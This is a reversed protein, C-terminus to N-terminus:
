SPPLLCVPSKPPLFCGPTTAALLTCYSPSPNAEAPTSYSTNTEESNQYSTNIDPTNQYTSNIEIANQYNTDPAQTNQYQTTHTTQHYSTYTPYGLQTNDSSNRTDAWPEMELVCQDMTTATNDGCPVVVSGM